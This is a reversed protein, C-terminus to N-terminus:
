SSDTGRHGVSVGAGYGDSVVAVRLATWGETGWQYGGWVWCGSSGGYSDHSRQAAAAGRGWVWCGSSGGKVDANVQKISKLRGGSSTLETLILVQETKRVVM